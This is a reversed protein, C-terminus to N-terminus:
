INVKRQQDTGKREDEGDGLNMNVDEDEFDMSDRNGNEAGL